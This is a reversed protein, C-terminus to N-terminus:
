SRNRFLRFPHVAFTALTTLARLRPHRESVFEVWRSLRRRNYIPRPGKRTLRWTVDMNGFTSAFPGILERNREIEPGKWIWEEGGKVHTWGHDQHIVTTVETADYVRVGAELAAYILWHDWLGRGVTVPPISDYLGTRFVFYDLGDRLEGSSSVQSEIASIWDSSDFEIPVGITIGWSRGVMLFKQREISTAARVFDDLLVMDANVYALLENSSERVATEFLGSVLPTGYENTPVDPIHRVNLAEAAEAVGDGEGLLIVEVDPLRTWSAIANFQSISDSDKFPKCTSFITLV